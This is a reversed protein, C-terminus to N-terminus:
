RRRITGPCGGVDSGAGFAFYGFRFGFWMVLYGFRFGFWKVFCIAGIVIFVCMVFGLAGIICSYRPHYCSGAPCDLAVESPRRPAGKEQGGHPFAGPLACAGLTLHRRVSSVPCPLSAPRAGARLVGYRAVAALVTQSRLPHVGRRRLKCAARLSRGIVQGLGRPIYGATICRGLAYRTRHARFGCARM